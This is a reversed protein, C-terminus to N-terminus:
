AAIEIGSAKAADQLNALVLVAHDKTGEKLKRKGEGGIASTLKRIVSKVIQDADVPMPQGIGSYEAWTKTPKTYKAHESKKNVRFIGAPFEDDGKGFTLNTHDQVYIQIAGTRVSKLGANLIRTM